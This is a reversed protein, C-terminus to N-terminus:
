TLADWILKSGTCTLLVYTIAFYLREPVMHHARVGIWVGLVALPAMWVNVWLTEATFIGLFTYPVFKMINIAWFVIVTTAQYTTKGIQQSLLFMAVPPGGAHSIFSTFGGVVGTFLGAANSFPRPAIKLWGRSRSLQYIVFLISVLGILIRLVDANAVQYFAAGLAVGPLGGLILVRTSPLHWQKWYPRLGAVDMLMLLPLMIGLALQPEIALAILPTAAFAAGSGFGGKSIGAFIVGVSILALTIPDSLM